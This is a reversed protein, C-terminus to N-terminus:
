QCKRLPKSPSGCSNGSNTSEMVNFIGLAQSGTPSGHIGKHKQRAGIVQEVGKEMRGSGIPKSAWQRRSDDISEARHKELYTMLAAWLEPNKAQVARRLYTLAADARGHWLHDLLHAVHVANAQTTCVVMGMLEGCMM